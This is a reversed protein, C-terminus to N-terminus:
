PPINGPTVAILNSIFPQSPSLIIRIQGAQGSTNLTYRTSVPQEDISYNEPRANVLPLPDPPIVITGLQRQPVDLEDEHVLIRRNILKNGSWEFQWKMRHLNGVHGNRDSTGWGRPHYPDVM